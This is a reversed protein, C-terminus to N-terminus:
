KACIFYCGLWTRRVDLDESTYSSKPRQLDQVNRIDWAKTSTQKGLGIHVAINAAAQSLQEMDMPEQGHILESPTHWLASVISAQVLELSYESEKRFCHYLVIVILCRLRKQTDIDCVGGSAAALIALFLVPKASRVETASAAPGLAVAPMNVSLELSYREFIANATRTSIIQTIGNEVFVPVSDIM